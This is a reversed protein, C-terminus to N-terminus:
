RFLVDCENIPSWQKLSIKMEAAEWQAIFCNLTNWINVESPALVAVDDSAGMVPCKSLLIQAHVWRGRRPCLITQPMKGPREDCAWTESITRPMARRAKIYWEISNPYGESLMLWFTEIFMGQSPLVNFLHAPLYSEFEKRKMKLHFLFASELLNLIFM